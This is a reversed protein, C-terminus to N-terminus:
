SDFDRADNVEGSARPGRVNRDDTYLFKGRISELKGTTTITGKIEFSFELCDIMTTFVGEDSGLLWDTTYITASTGYKFHTRMQPSTIGVMSVEAFRTNKIGVVGLNIEVTRASFGVVPYTAVDVLRADFGYLTGNIRELSSPTYSLQYAGVDNYALCDSETGLYWDRELPDFSAVIDAETMASLFETYWLSSLEGNMSHKYLHGGEVVFYHHNEDGCVALRSAIGLKLLPVSDVMLEGNEAPSVTYIGDSCYVIIRNAIEKVALVDGEGPMECFGIQHREIASRLEADVKDTETTGELDFLLPLSRYTEDHQIARQYVIWNSGFVMGSYTRANTHTKWLEFYEDWRSNNINGGTCGGLVLTHGHFGVANATFSVGETNYIRDSVNGPIKYLLVTGNCAFFSDKRFFASQWGTGKTTISRTSATSDSDYLPISSGLTQASENVEYIKHDTNYDGTLTYGEGRMLMPYPWDQTYGGGPAPPLAVTIPATIGEQTLRGNLLTQMKAHQGVRLETRSRLGENLPIMHTHESM